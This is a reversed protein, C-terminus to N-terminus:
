EDSMLDYDYSRGPKTHSRTAQAPPRQLIEELTPFEDDGSDVMESLDLM